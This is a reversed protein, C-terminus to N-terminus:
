QHENTSKNYNKHKNIVTLGSITFIGTILEGVFILHSEPIADGIWMTHFVTIYTLIFISVFMLLILRKTSYENHEKLTDDRLKKLENM